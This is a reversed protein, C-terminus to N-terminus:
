ITEQIIIYKDNLMQKTADISKTIYHYISRENQLKYDKVIEKTNYYEKIYEYDNNFQNYKYIIYVKNSKRM